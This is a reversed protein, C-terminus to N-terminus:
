HCRIVLFRKQFRCCYDAGFPMNSCAYRLDDGPEKKEPLEMHKSDASQHEEAVNPEQSIMPVESPFSLEGESSVGFLDPDDQIVDILLVDDEYAKLIDPFGVKIESFNKSM